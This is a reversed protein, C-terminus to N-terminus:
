KPTGARTRAEALRLEYVSQEATNDAALQVLREYLEAAAAADGRQMRIRAAADLAEIREFDYRARDAIRRYLSEADDPRDSAELAAAELFAASTGLDTGIASSLPEIATFAQEPKGDELYVQALILRAEDAARTGAFMAIFQELDRIALAANGSAATQRVVELQAEAQARVAAQHNRYYLGATIGVVLIVGTIILHRAHARSWAMLELLRAIFADDPDNTPGHQVRRATPHRVMRDRREDFDQFSDARSGHVARASQRYIM